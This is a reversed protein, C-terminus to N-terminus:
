VYLRCVICPKGTSEEPLMGLADSCDTCFWPAPIVSYEKDCGACYIAHNDPPFEGFYQDCIHDCGHMACYIYTPAEALMKDIENKNM